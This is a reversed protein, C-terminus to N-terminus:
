ELRTVFRSETEFFSYLQVRIKCGPCMTRILYIIQLYKRENKRKVRNIIDKSICFIKIIIFNLKDLKKPLKLKQHRTECRILYEYKEQELLPPFCFEEEVSMPERVPSRGGLGALKQIKLLSLTESHQGPQDRIGSRLYDAQRLTGFHISFQDENLAEYRPKKRYGKLGKFIKPDLAVVGHPRSASAPSNRSGLLRLNRHASIAGNCELRPLLLSVEDPRCLNCHASIAGSCELRAAPHSETLSASAPSNSSGLLCPSCNALITGSYELRPLLALSWRKTHKQFPQYQNNGDM